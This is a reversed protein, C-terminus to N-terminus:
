QVYFSSRTLRIGDDAKRRVSYLKNRARILMLRSFFAADRGFELFELVIRRYSATKGRGYLRM